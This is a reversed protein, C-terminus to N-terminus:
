NACGKPSPGFSVKSVSRTAAAASSSPGTPPSRVQGVAFIGAPCTASVSWATRKRGASLKAARRPPAAVIIVSGDASVDSASSGFDDSPLDGLGIMGGAQTWRFAEIGFSSHSGGVIVSGAASVASASSWSDGGPLDGIGSMGGSQTWRFGERGSNSESQGVIVLGDNSVAFAVSVDRGPLLGLPAMQRKATWLFAEVM